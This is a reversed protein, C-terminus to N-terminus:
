PQQFDRYPDPYGLSRLIATELGEMEEAQADTIHDYGVLHLVGHVVMHAWHAALPKGQEEAQRAVVPACVVLDGILDTKVPAPAEFPFSLVNTSRDPGRFDRNLARMEDVDVIRIVLEAADRRGHLAARAWGEMRARNPVGRQRCVRQLELRLRM